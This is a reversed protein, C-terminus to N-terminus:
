LNPNFRYGVGYITEILSNNSDELKRRLLRVQAAVVNSIPEEDVEWLQNMIQDRNVIQNPHKMFYELLQFEKITLPIVQKKEDTANQRTVSHTGYNLTLNGAQLQPPQLQPSRRRLARLRALLEPMKFPKVLYDDAGADLGIIKEEMRDKATLMLVPLSSHNARLRKCLELGSMGPLMWDIIALTYETWQTELYSWAQNGDLIWDVVYTEQNLVKKIAAGLDPEDEILLLRM